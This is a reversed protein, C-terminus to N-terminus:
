SVAYKNTLSAGKLNADIVFNWDEASLDIVDSYRIVGANNAPVEISGFKTLVKDVAGKVIEVKRM